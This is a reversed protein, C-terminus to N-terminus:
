EGDNIDIINLFTEIASRYKELNVGDNIIVFDVLDDKIPIESVHKDTNPELNKNQIEFVVMDDSYVDKMLEVESNTRTDTYIIINGNLDLEQLNYLEIKAWVSNDIHKAVETGFYQLLKRASWHKVEYYLGYAIHLAQNYNFDYMMLDKHEDVKKCFREAIQIFDYFDIKILSERDYDDYGELNEYTLPIIGDCAEAVYEKLRKAFSKQHIKYKVSDKFKEQVLESFLNKGSRKNGSVLIVIGERM